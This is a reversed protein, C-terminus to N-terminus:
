GAGKRNPKLPPTSQAPRWDLVARPPPQEPRGTNIPEYSHALHALVPCCLPCMRKFDARTKLNKEVRHDLGPLTRALYIRAGRKVAERTLTAGTGLAHERMRQDLRDDKCSGLYHRSKGVPPDFHLLYIM